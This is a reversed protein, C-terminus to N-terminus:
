PAECWIDSSLRFAPSGRVTRRDPIRRTRRRCGRKRQGHDAPPPEPPAVRPLRQSTANVASGSRDSAATVPANASQHPPLAGGPRSSTAASGSRPMGIAHSHFSVAARGACRATMSVRIRTPMTIVAVNTSARFPNSMALPRSPVASSRSYRSGRRWSAAASGDNMANRDCTATGSATQAIQIAM